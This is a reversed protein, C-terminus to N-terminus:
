KRSFLGTRKNKATQLEARINHLDNELRERLQNMAQLEATKKTLDAQLISNERQLEEATRNHHEIRTGLVQIAERRYSTIEDISHSLRNITSTMQQIQNSLHQVELRKQEVERKAQVLEYETSQLLLAANTAIKMHAAVDFLTSQSPTRRKASKIWNCLSRSSKEISFKDALKKASNSKKEM